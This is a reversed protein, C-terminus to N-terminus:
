CRRTWTNKSCFWLFTKLILLVLRFSLKWKNIADRVLGLQAWGDLIHIKALTHLLTSYLATKSANENVRAIIESVELSDDLLLCSVSSILFLTSAWIISMGSTFQSSFCFFIDKHDVQRGSWRANCGIVFSFKKSKIKKLVITNITLNNLQQETWIKKRFKLTLSVPPIATFSLFLLFLVVPTM